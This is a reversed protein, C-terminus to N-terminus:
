LMVVMEGGGGCNKIRYVRKIVAMGESGDRSEVRWIALQIDGWMIEVIPFTRGIGRGMEFPQPLLHVGGYNNGGSIM